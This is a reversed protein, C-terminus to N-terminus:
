AQAASSRIQARFSHGFKIPPQEIMRYTVTAILITLPFVLALLGFGKIAFFSLLLLLVPHVLYVSYSIRGLFSFVSGSWIGHGRSFYPVFFVLAALSWSDIAMPFTATPHPDAFLAFGVFLNAVILALLLLIFAAFKRASIEGQERRYCILGAVCCVLMSLRGMPMHHGLACLLQGAASAAIALGVALGHKRNLGLLFLLSIGLYWVAELSLTWSGGVFDQQHVYEQLFFAHALLNAAAHGFSHVDGGLMLAFTAFYIFVYLPYIRLVRHLWFLKLDNTKELSLPIVFGSVLFFAVVGTEGLELRTPIFGSEKGAIGLLGSEYLSHQLMVM